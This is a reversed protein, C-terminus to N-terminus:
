LHIEQMESFAPGPRQQPLCSEDAYTSEFSCASQTCLGARWAFEGSWTRRGVKQAHMARGTAAGMAERRVSAQGSRLGNASGHGSGFCFVRGGLLVCKGTYGLLGARLEVRRAAVAAPSALCGPVRPQCTEWLPDEHLVTDMGFCPVPGGLLAPEDVNTSEASCASHM